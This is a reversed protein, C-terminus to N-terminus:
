GIFSPCVEFGPGEFNPVHWPGCEKINALWVGNPSRHKWVHIAERESWRRLKRSTLLMRFYLRWEFIHEVNKLFSPQISNLYNLVFCWSWARFTAKPGNCVCVCSGHGQFQSLWFFTNLPRGLVGRFDHLTTVHGWTYHSARMFCSGSSAMYSDIYVKCGDQMWMSRQNRLLLTFCRVQVVQEAKEM